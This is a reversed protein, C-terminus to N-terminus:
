GFRVFNIFFTRLMHIIRVEDSYPKLNVYVDDPIGPTKFLYSLDETHAAGRVGLARANSVRRYRNLGADM